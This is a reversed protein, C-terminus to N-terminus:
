PNNIVFQRKGVYTSQNLIDIIQLEIQHPGNSYNRTDILLRWGPTASQPYGLYLSSISPYTLGTEAFGVVAGDILVQVAGLGEWDLAWGSVYTFGSLQQGFVPQDINGVGEENGLHEDCIFTVPIESIISVQGAHDGARITLVHAGETYFGRGILDGVDVVFRFGSHPADKLGPFIPELDVRRLGYCNSFGDLAADFVCDLRSNFLLARDLLLEVYGVGTDFDQVGADLAYGSVVSFRRDPTVLNCKGRMEAQPAPFEIKGFPVLNHQVNLFEFIRSPLKKTEGSKSLIRPTVTHNGNLFHTTDLQYVWGAALSDPYGPFQQAVAPRNRHYSARGVVAGDVLIDVAAVGDDDLAWGQLPLFNAGSNGGGVKGGFSGFPSAAWLPASALAVALTMLGVRLPVMLTVNRKM